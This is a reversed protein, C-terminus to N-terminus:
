QWGPGYSPPPAVESGNGAALDLSSGEQASGGVIIFVVPSMFLRVNRRLVATLAAAM